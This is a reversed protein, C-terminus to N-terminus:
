NREIFLYALFIGATAIGAIVMSARFATVAGYSLYISIVALFFVVRSFSLVVERFAYFELVDKEEAADALKSYVPVYYMMFPPGAALSILFADMPNRILGRGVFLIGSLLTGAFILKKTDISEAKKGLFITFGAMGLSALSSVLGANVLGGEGTSIYLAIFLPFLYVGAGIGVGRLMFLSGYKLHKMDLISTFSYREPERHDTSAILPLTSLILFALSVSVLAGFGLSAMIVGGALPAIAKSIRPLGLLKGSDEDRGDEDSDTAFESHLAIWHFAKGLGLLLAVGTVIPLNLSMVGREVIQFSIFAPLYFLFSLVLAHKFGIKAIVYSVPISTIMFFFSLMVVFFFAAELNIAQAVHIPIFISILGFALKQLTEYAFIQDVEHEHFFALLRNVPQTKAKKM